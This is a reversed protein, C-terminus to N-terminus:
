DGARSRRDIEARSPMGTRAGRAAVSCSGALVARHVAAALGHGQALAAALAGNFADGAGTTDVAETPPATVECSEEGSVLLAGQGGLTVVVAAGCRKSLRRASAEHPHDSGSIAELEGANPTLIPGLELLAQPLARAPAPNVV